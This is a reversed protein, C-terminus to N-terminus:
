EDSALSERQCKGNSAPTSIGRSVSPESSPSTQARSSSPEQILRANELRPVPWSGPAEWDPVINGALPTFLAAGFAILWISYRTAADSKRLASVILWVAAMLFAVRLTSAALISVADTV